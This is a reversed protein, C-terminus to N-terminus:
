HLGKKESGVQNPQSILSKPHFHMDLFAVKGKHCAEWHFLGLGLSKTQVNPVGRLLPASIYALKTWVRRSHPAFPLSVSVTCASCLDASVQAHNPM